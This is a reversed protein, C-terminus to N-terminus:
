PLNKCIPNFYYLAKKTSTYLFEPQDVTPLNSWNSHIQFRGSVLGHFIKHPLYYAPNRTSCYYSNSFKSNVLLTRNMFSAIIALALQIPLLNKLTALALICTINRRISIGNSCVSHDQILICIRAIKLSGM